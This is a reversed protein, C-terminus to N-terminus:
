RADELELTACRTPRTELTDLRSRLATLVATPPDAVAPESALAAAPAFLLGGLLTVTRPNM